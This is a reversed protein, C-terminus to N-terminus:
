GKLKRILHKANKKNDYKSAILRSAASGIKLMLAPDNQCMKIKKIFDNVTNAILVEKKDRANIGELGLSTTIVVRGRAMAELIKVRMGSGSFLPVIMVQCSLIFEKADPVEGHIIFNKEVKKLFSKPTNRGAIHFEVNSFKDQNVNWVKNLFWSVGEMNPMWDLSGIFSLKLIDGM